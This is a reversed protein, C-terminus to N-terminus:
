RCRDLLYGLRSATAREEELVSTSDELTDGPLPSAHDSRRTVTLRAM